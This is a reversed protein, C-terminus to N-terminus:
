KSHFTDLILLKTCSHNRISLLFQNCVFFSYKNSKCDYFHDSAFFAVSFIFGSCMNTLMLITTSIKHRINPKSFFSYFLNQIKCCVCFQINQDRKHCFIEVIHLFFVSPSLFDSNLNGRLM